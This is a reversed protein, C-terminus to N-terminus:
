FTLTLGVANTKVTARQVSAEICGDRASFLIDGLTVIFVVVCRASEIKCFM